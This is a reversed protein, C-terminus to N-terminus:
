CLADEGVLSCKSCCNFCVLQILNVSTKLREILADDNCHNAQQCKPCTFCLTQKFSSEFTFVIIPTLDTLSRILEVLQDCSLLSVDKGQVGIIRDMLSIKKLEADDRTFGIIYKENNAGEEIQLGLGGAEDAVLHATFLRPTLKFTTVASEMKNEHNLLDDECAFSNEIVIMSNLISANEM